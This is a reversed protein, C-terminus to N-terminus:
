GPSASGAANPVPSRCEGARLDRLKLSPREVIHLSVESCAFACFIGILPHAIGPGLFLQQWLYLSYSLAGIHVIPRWNLIRGGISLPNRVSYFLLYCIAANDLTYGFPMRYYGAFRHFLAPSIGFLFVLAGFTVIPREIREWARAFWPEGRVIALTCGMMLGDMRMHLMFADLNGHNWFKHSIVRVVPSAAILALALCLGRRRGLFVLAAPWLLYFQEEISLSWSHGTYWDGPLMYDRIFFLSSLLSRWDSTIWGLHWVIVVAFLFAYFPPFIRVARRLYFRRLSIDGNKEFEKLLLATILFGSIVFFISVGLDGNGFYSWEARHEGHYSFLAHGVLVMSISVARLGDLSPIRVAIIMHRETRTECGSGLM